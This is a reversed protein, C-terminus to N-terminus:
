GHSRRRTRVPVRQLDIWSDLDATAFRIKRGGLRIFPIRREQILRRLYRESCCLYLAAQAIDLLVTTTLVDPPVHFPVDRLQRTTPVKSVSNKSSSM